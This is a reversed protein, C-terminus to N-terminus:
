ESSPGQADSISSPLAPNDYNTGPPGEITGNNAIGAAVLKGDSQQAVSQAAGITTTVIGTGNFSTDLTGNPNYRVLAFDGLGSNAAVVIKGDSQVTMGQRQRFGSGIPTIVIGTGGFTQDLDGPAATAPGSLAAIAACLSPILVLAPIKMSKFESRIVRRWFLDAPTRRHVGIPSSAASAPRCLLSHGRSQNVSFRRTPLM